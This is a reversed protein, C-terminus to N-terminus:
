SIKVCNKIRKMNGGSWILCIMLSEEIIFICVHKMMCNISLCYIWVSFHHCSHNSKIRRHWLTMIYTQIKLIKRIRLIKMLSVHARHRHNGKVRNRIVRLCSSLTSSRWYKKIISSKVITLESWGTSNMKMFNTILKIKKIVQNWWSSLLM